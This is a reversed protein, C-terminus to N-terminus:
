FAPLFRRESRVLRRTAPTQLLAQGVMCPSYTLVASGVTMAGLGRQLVAGTIHVGDGIAVDGNAVVLGNFVTGASFTLNGDVVLVGGHVGPALVTAGAAYIFGSDAVSAVEPWRLGGFAYSHDALLLTDAAIQPIALTCPNSDVLFRASTALFPTRTALVASAEAVAREVDLTRLLMTERVRAQGAAVTGIAHYQGWTLRRITIVVGNSDTITALQSVRLSDVTPIPWSRIIRRLAAEAARTGQVVREHASISVWEHTALAVTSLTLLEVAGVVLLVLLVAFGSRNM